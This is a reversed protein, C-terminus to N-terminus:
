HFHTKVVPLVPSPSSPAIGLLLGVLFNGPHKIFLVRESERTEAIIDLEDPGLAVGLQWFLRVRTPFM